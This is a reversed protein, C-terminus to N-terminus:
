AAAVLGSITLSERLESEQREAIRASTAYEIECQQYGQALGAEYGQKRAEGVARASTILEAIIPGLASPIASQDILLETDDRQILLGTTTKSIFIM